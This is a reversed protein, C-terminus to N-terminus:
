KKRPNAKIIEFKLTNSIVETAPYEPLSMTKYRVRIIHKGLSLSITQGKDEKSEKLIWNETLKIEFFDYLVNKPKLEVAPQDTAAPGNWKYWKGDIEIECFQELPACSFAKEGTNLLDMKFARIKDSIFIRQGRNTSANLRIQLGNVEEGWEFIKDYYNEEKERLWWPSNMLREAENPDKCFTHGTSRWYDWFLDEADKNYFKFKGKSQQEELFLRYADLPEPGAQQYIVRGKYQKYLESNIKWSLIFPKITNDISKALNSDVSQYLLKPDPRSEIYKNYLELKKELEAKKASEINEAVLEKALGDRAAKLENNALTIVQAMKEHYEKIEQKTVELGKEKAYEDWLPKFYQGLNSARTQKLWLNFQENPESEQQKKKVASNPEIDGLSVKQGVVEAVITDKPLNEFPVAANVISIGLLLISIGFILHNTKM